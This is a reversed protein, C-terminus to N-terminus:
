SHTNYLLIPKGTACHYLVWGSICSVCLLPRPEIGPDPLDGPFPFPLGSWYEQRPFGQHAVIWQPQLSDSVLSHAHIGLLSKFLFTKVVELLGLALLDTELPNM